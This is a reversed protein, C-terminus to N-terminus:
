TDTEIEKLHQYIMVMALTDLECYQLLAEIAEKQQEGRMSGELINGFVIMAETGRGVTTGPQMNRLLYYPNKAENREYDWQWWQMKHFNRSDYPLSYRQKLYPSITLISQVIDKISLSNSMNFNYYYNKVLRSLDAMYPGKKRNSDARAVISKLWSILIGADKISAYEDELESCVTKLATREFNSYQIITGEEIDTVKRLQRILEFNPYPEQGRAIWEHHTLSGDSHLTHCSFQFVVLHYPTRDSRIPVAYNGAEFDLFHLPYQWRAVEQLMEPKVVEHPIALGKAKKVQLAQRQKNTITGTDSTISDTSALSSLPVNKQLYIGQKLLTNIGGGILDFVHPEAPTYSPAQQWCQNFGSLEGRAAQCGSIRFECDKCKKGLTTSTRQSYFFQQKLGDILETFPIGNIDRQLMQQVHVDIEIEHLLSSEKLIQGPKNIRENLRDNQARGVKNPLLLHTTIQWKPYSQDIIHYQYAASIVYPEWKKFLKGDHATLNNKKPHLAKSHIFYLAVRDDKKILLPVKAVCGQYIFLSNFLTIKSDAVLRRTDEYKSEYGAGSVYIGHPYHSFALKKLHRNNYGALQLFPRIREDQPYDRAYYFLKVHCKLGARFLHKTFYKHPTPNNRM